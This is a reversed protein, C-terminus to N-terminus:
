AHVCVCQASSSPAVCSSTCLLRSSAEVKSGFVGVKGVLAQPSHTLSQYMCQGGWAWVQVGERGFHSALLWAPPITVAGGGEEGERGWYSQGTGLHMEPALEALLLNRRM